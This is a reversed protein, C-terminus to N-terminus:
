RGGRRRVGSKQGWGQAEKNEYSCAAVLAGAVRLNGAQSDQFFFVRRGNRRARRRSRRGRRRQTDWSGVRERKERREIDRDKKQRFLLSLPLPPPSRGHIFKQRHIYKNGRATVSLGQSNARKIPPSVIIYKAL